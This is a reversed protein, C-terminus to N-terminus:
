SYDEVLKALFQATQLDHCECLKISLKKASMNEAIKREIGYNGDDHPIIYTEFKNLNEWFEFFKSPTERFIKM